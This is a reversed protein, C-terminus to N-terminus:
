FNNYSLFLCQLFKGISSWKWSLTSCAILKVNLTKKTWRLFWKFTIQIKKNKNNYPWLHSVNNQHSPRLCLPTQHLQEPERFKVLTLLSPVTQNRVAPTPLTTSWVAFMQSILTCQADTVFCFDDLKFTYMHILAENLFNWFLREKLPIDPMKGSEFISLFRVQGCVWLPRPPCRYLHLYLRLWRGMERWGPITSGQIHVNRSFFWNM